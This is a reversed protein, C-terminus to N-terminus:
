ADGEMEKRLQELQDIVSEDLTVLNKSYHGTKQRVRKSNGRLHEFEVALENASIRTGGRGLVLQQIMGDSTAVRINEKTGLRDIAREIYTDATEYEKTYVVDVGRITEHVENAGKVQHADFVILIKEGSLAQFEAMDAILALRASDLSEKLRRILKPWANIINYGDIFLYDKKVRAM